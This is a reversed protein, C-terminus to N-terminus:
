TRMQHNRGRSHEFNNGSDGKGYSNFHFSKVTKKEDGAPSRGGAEFNELFDDNQVPECTMFVEKRYIM